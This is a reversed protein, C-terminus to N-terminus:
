PLYMVGVLVLFYVASHLLVGTMTPCGDSTSTKTFLSKTLSFMHPSSVLFYILSGYLSHKLMTGYSIRSEGMMMSLFSVMFFVLTHILSGAYTPCGNKYTSVPLLRNTLKYTFPLNLVAFTSASGLSIM